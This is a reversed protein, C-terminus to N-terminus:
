TDPTGPKRWRVHSYQFHRRFSGRILDVGDAIRRHFAPRFFVKDAAVRMRAPHRHIIEDPHRAIRLVTEDDVGTEVGLGRRPAAAYKQTRRFLTQPMETDLRSRDLLHDDGMQMVVVDAIEIEERARTKM